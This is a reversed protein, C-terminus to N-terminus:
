EFGQSDIKYCQIVKERTYTTGLKPNKMKLTVQILNRDGLRQYTLSEIQHNMYTEKPIYWDVEEEEYKLHLMKDEGVYMWMPQHKENVYRIGSSQIAVHGLTDDLEGTIKELLIDTIGQARSMATVKAYVNMAPAMTAITATMLIGLVAFSVILEVLTMGSQNRKIKRVRQRFKQSFSQRMSLIM